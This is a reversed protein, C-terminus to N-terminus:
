KEQKMIRMKDCFDSELVGCRFLLIDDIIISRHIDNKINRIDMLKQNIVKMLKFLEIRTFKDSAGKNGYMGILNSIMMKSYMSKDKGQKDKQSSFSALLGTGQQQLKNLLMCNDTVIDLNKQLVRQQKINFLIRYRWGILNLLDEYPAYSVSEKIYKNVIKRAEVYNKNDIHDFLEWIVFNSLHYVCKVIDSKQINKKKGVFLCIVNIINEIQDVNYNKQENLSLSQLIIGTDDLNVSRGSKKLLQGIIDTAQDRKVFEPFNFVKGIKEVHKFIVSRESSSINNIIVMTSDDLNSLLDCWRKNSKTSTKNGDFHNIDKLIFIRQGESFLTEGLIQIELNEAVYDDSVIIVEKESFSSTIKNIIQKRQSISGNIWVTKVTSM